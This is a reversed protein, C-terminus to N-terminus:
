RLVDTCGAAASLPCPKVAAQMPFKKGYFPIAPKWKISSQMHDGDM